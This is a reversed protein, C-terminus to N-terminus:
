PTEESPSTTGADADFGGGLALFLDIRNDLRQREATIRNSEATFAQRQGDSVALFDTLGDQWRERALDRGLTASRAARVLEDRRRDIASTAALASEIETFATLVAGQYIALSERQLAETRAVEARLAGGEFLPQLLNAGLSFVSFDSDLLDELETSTTGGSATLSLRPYLAATARDVRCGAAALQREAAVLDPRRRLLESPLGIPVPPLEAPLETAGALLGEPYRGCLLDLQRLTRQLQEARAAVNANANALNTAAQHADLASRLGRRFRDRVDAETQGVSTATAEALALQQRAEVVAFYSKCIQGALSLRASDHLLATAEADAIAAREGARLRGWVDLEWRVNLSLGYTTTTSSAVGGGGFPFGLFLRKARQADVGADVQPLAGAGAITPTTWAAELRAASAALDRNNQLAEAVLADLVPDGFDHWWTAGLTGTTQDEKARYADPLAMGLEPQQPPPSSACSSLVVATFSVLCARRPRRRAASLPKM